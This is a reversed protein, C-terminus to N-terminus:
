KGVPIISVDCAGFKDGPQDSCTLAVLQQTVPIPATSDNHEWEKPTGGCGVNVSYAAVTEGIAKSFTAVNPQQGRQWEAWGRGEGRAPEVWVGTVPKGNECTVTGAVATFNSADPATEHMILYTAGGAVLAGVAFAGAIPGARRKRENSGNHVTSKEVPQAEAM